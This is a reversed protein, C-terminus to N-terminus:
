KDINRQTHTGTFRDKDTYIQVYTIETKLLEANVVAVLFKLLQENHQSQLRFLLLVQAFADLHSLQETQYHWHQFYFIPTDSTM